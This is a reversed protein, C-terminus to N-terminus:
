IQVIDFLIMSLLISNLVIVIKNVSYLLYIDYKHVVAAYTTHSNDSINGFGPKGLFVTYFQAVSFIGNKRDIEVEVENM